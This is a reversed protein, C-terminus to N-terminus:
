AKRRIKMRTNFNDPKQNIKSLNLVIRDENYDIWARQTFRWAVLRAKYRPKQIGEIGEKIKYLWKCSVLKQGPPQNVLEWTHNKMLSSIEEEMARVWEDKDNSNIAEQFTIPEHTDEEKAIVFAYAAMDDVKSGSPRSLSVNGEDRYRAPISTTRKARNRVLVYNDLNQQQPEEDQEEEENRPKEETHPDVTPEVHSYAVCGFIRLMEYITPHGSWLDMHTKKKLATSPSRNILYAATVTAEA